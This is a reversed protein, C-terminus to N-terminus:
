CIDGMNVYFEHKYYCLYKVVSGESSVFYEIVKGDNLEPFSQAPCFPCSLSSARRKAIETRWANARALDEPRCPEGLHFDNAGCEVCYEHNGM